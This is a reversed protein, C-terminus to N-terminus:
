NISKLIEDLKMDRMQNVDGRYKTQCDKIFKKFTEKSPNRNVNNRFYCFDIYVDWKNDDSISIWWFRDPISQGFKKVARNRRRVENRDSNFKESNPIKNIEPKYKM